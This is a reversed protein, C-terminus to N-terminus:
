WSVTFVKKGRHQELFSLVEERNALSYSTGNGADFAVGIKSILIDDIM